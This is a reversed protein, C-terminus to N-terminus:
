MRSLFSYDEPCLVYANYDHLVGNNREGCKDEGERDSSDRGCDGSGIDGGSGCDYLASEELSSTHE